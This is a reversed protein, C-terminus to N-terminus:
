NKLRWGSKFIWAIVALCAVLFGLTVGLSVAIDVDGKGFFSWRFGSVLYVVPNFLSVTRWGRPCRSCPPLGCILM